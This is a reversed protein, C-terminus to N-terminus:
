IAISDARVPWRTSDVSCVLLAGILTARNISIPM